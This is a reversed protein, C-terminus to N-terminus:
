KTSPSTETQTQPTEAPFKFVSNDIDVDMEVKEVTFTSVTRDGVRQEVSYPIMLGNVAKYDGLFADVDFEQGQRKQHSTTKLELNNDVGIYIYRVNGNKLTLKLRYAERGELTDKGVLEVTNGKEKYDVLPGDLDAQEQMDQLDSDTMKQPQNSGLFPMVLWGEEGDYAQIASKGDLTFEVRVMNPRKMQISFPMEQSRAMMNGTMKLSKVAKIKELGGRAELNKAIIEDVTLDSAFAQLSFHIFLVFLVSLSKRLM